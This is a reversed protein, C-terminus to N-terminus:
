EALQGIHPHITFSSRPSGSKGRRIMPRQSSCGRSCTKENSRLEFRPTKIWDPILSGLCDNTYFKEFIRRFIPCFQLKFAAGRIVPITSNSDSPPNLHIVLQTRYGATIWAFLMLQRRDFLKTSKGNFPESCQPM